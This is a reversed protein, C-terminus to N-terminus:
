LATSVPAGTVLLHIELISCFVLPSIVAVIPVRSVVPVHLPVAAVAVPAYCNNTQFVFSVTIPAVVVGASAVFL